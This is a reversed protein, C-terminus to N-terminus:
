PLAEGAAILKPIEKESVGCRSLFAASFVAMARRQGRKLGYRHLEVGCSKLAQVLHETPNGPLLLLRDHSALDPLVIPYVTLQGVGCYVDAASVGTKIEILIPGAKTDIAGDVEYNAAHRPKQIEIGFPKLTAELCEFVYGQVRLVRKSQLVPDVDYWGGRERKGFLTAVQSQDEAARQGYTRANWCTRVFEATAERIVAHSVRDLAAVVHWEKKSPAGEVQMPVPELGTRRTFEGWQIRPSSPSKHLDGQRVLYRNGRDDVAVTTGPNESGATGPQNLQVAAGESSGIWFDLHLKEHRPIRRYRVDTGIIQMATGIQESGALVIRHWERFAAPVLRQDGSLRLGAVDAMLDEGLTQLNGRRHACDFSAQRMHAFCVLNDRDRADDPRGSDCDAHRFSVSQLRGFSSEGLDVPEFVHARGREQSLERCCMTQGGPYLPM